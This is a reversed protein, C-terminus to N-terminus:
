WVQGYRLVQEQVELEIRDQALSTMLTNISRASYIGCLRFLGWTM